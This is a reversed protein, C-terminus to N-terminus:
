RYLAVRRLRAVRQATLLTRIADANPDAPLSAGFATFADRYALWLREAKRIDAHTMTTNGIRDPKHEQSSPAQMLEQYLQNLLSDQESFEAASAAPLRGALTDLVAQMFEERLRAQSMTALSPALTGQIDTEAYGAESAYREAAQHLTAYATRSATPLGTTARALRAERVRANATEQRDACVAGMYGSTIDDCLDFPKEPTPGDVLHAIRHEMESKAIFDLSCAHHIARGTDRPVGYGNAYLMMLVANDDKALACARVQDWEAQSIEAQGRKRDYLDIPKCDAPARTTAPAPQLHEAHMCRKYWDEDTSYPVGFNGTHPYPGAALAPACAAFALLLLRPIQRLTDPM